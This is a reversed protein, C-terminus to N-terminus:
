DKVVFSQGRNLALTALDSNICEDCSLIAQRRPLELVYKAHVTTDRLLVLRADEALEVLHDTTARLLRAGDSNVVFWVAAASLSSSRRIIRLM